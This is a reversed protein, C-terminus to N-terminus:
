QVQHSTKKSLLIHKKTQGVLRYDDAELPVDNVCCYTTVLYVRVKTEVGHNIYTFRRQRSSTATILGFSRVKSSQFCGSCLSTLFLVAGPLFIIGAVAKVAQFSPHEPPSGTATLFSPSTRVYTSSSSRGRLQLTARFYPPCFGGEM